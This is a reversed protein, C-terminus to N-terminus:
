IAMAVLRCRPRIQAVTRPRILSGIDPDKMMDGLIEIRCDLTAQKLILTGDRVALPVYAYHLSSDRAFGTVECLTQGAAADRVVIQPAGDRLTQLLVHAGSPDLRAILVDGADALAPGEAETVGGDALQGLKCPNRGADAARLFAIKRNGARRISAVTGPAAAGAATEAGTQVDVILMQGNKAALCVSEEDYWALGAAGNVDRIRDITTGAYQEIPLVKRVTLPVGSAVYLTLEGTPFADAAVISRALFALATESPSWALALVQCRDAGEGAWLKDFGQGSTQVYVDCKEPLGGAVAMRGTRGGFDAQVNAEVAPQPLEVVQLPAPWQPKTEAGRAVRALSPLGAMGAGVLGITKAAHRRTMMKKEM